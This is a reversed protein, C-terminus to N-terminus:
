LAPSASDGADSPAEGEWPGRGSSRVSRMREMLKDRMLSPVFNRRTVVISRDRTSGVRWIINGWKCGCIARIEGIRLFDGAGIKPSERKNAPKIRSYLM